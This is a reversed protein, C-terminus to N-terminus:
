VGIMSVVASPQRLIFGFTGAIVKQQFSSLQRIIPFARQKENYAAYGTPQGELDKAILQMFNGGAVGQPNSSSKTQYQVPNKVEINSWNKKLLDSVNVNFTNTATLAGTSVPSLALVMPTDPRILGPNQSILQEYCTQIDTFIENATAVVQNSSNTWATGGAAKPGPTLSATLYPNNILGYNQIGTVGFAYCYNAFKNLQIAGSRDIESVYNIKALGMRALELEGWQKILQFLYSQVQPFNVNVGARGNNNFDGYSSTEGTAEVVPLMLTQQTWDGKREEGLLDAMMNPAFLWEYIKPDIFTTLLAPISSSPDSGISPVTSVADLAMQRMAPSTAEEPWYGRPEAGPMYGIGLRDWEARDQHYAAFAEQVNM